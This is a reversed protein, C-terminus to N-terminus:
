ISLYKSTKAGKSLIQGFNIKPICRIGNPAHIPTKQTIFTALIDEIIINPIVHVHIISSNCVIEKLNFSLMVTFTHIDSLSDIYM